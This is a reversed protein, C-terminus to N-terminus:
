DEHEDSCDDPAPIKLKNSFACPMESFNDIMYLLEHIGSHKLVRRLQNHELCYGCGLLESCELSDSLIIIRQVPNLEHMKTLVELGHEITFDIVVMEPDQETYFKIAEDSDGILHVDHHAM